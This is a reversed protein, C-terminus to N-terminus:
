NQIQGIAYGAAITILIGGVVGGAFYLPAWRNGNRKEQREAETVLFRIQENKIEVVDAYKSEAAVKAARLNALDLELKATAKGVEREVKIQCKSEQNELEVQMKAAAATSYLVGDFPAKQGEKMPSVAELPKPGEPEQMLASVDVAFPSAEVQSPAGLVGLFCITTLIAKIKIM